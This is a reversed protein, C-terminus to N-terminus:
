MSLASHYLVFFLTRDCIIMITMMKVVMMVIMMMMVVVLVMMMAMMMMMVMMIKKSERYLSRSSNQVECNLLLSHVPYKQLISIKNKGTIKRICM